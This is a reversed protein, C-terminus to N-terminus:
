YLDEDKVWGIKKNIEIKSYNQYTKLIKVKHERQTIM